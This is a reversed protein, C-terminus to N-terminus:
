GVHNKCFHFPKEGQRIPLLCATGPNHLSINFSTLFRFLPYQLMNFPTFCLLVVQLTLITFGVFTYHQM